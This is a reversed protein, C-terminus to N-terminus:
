ITFVQLFEGSPMTVVVLIKKFLCSLLLFPGVHHIQLNHSHSTTQDQGPHTDVPMLGEIKLM